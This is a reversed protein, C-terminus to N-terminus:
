SVVCSMASFVGETIILVDSNQNRHLNFVVKSKSSNTPNKYKYRKDINPDISRAVLMDTFGNNVRNPVIIRDTYLSDLLGSFRIDYYDAIEKNYGRSILYALAIPHDSARTLPLVYKFEDTDMDDTLNSLRDLTNSKVYEILEGSMKLRGNTNCKFCHYKGSYVNVYLKYSKDEKGRISKCFPCCYQIEGSYSPVTHDKGFNLEAINYYKGEIM